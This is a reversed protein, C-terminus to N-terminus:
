LGMLSIRQNVRNLPLASPYVAFHHIESDLSYINGSGGDGVNGGLFFLSGASSNGSGVSYVIESQQAGGAVKSTVKFNGTSHSYAIALYIMKNQDNVSNSILSGGTWGAGFVRLDNISNLQAFTSGDMYYGSVFISKNATSSNAKFIIEFTRDATRGWDDALSANFAGDYNGVIVMKGQAGRLTSSALATTGRPTLNNKVAALGLDPILGSNLASFTYLHSVGDDKALSELNSANGATIAYTATSGNSFSAVLNASLPGGPANRIVSVSNSGAPAFAIQPASLSFATADTGSLTLSVAAPYTTSSNSWSQNVSYNSGFSLSSNSATPAPLSPPSGGGSCDGSGTIGLITTGACITSATPAGSIAAFYGAGAFSSGAGTVSWTGRNALTGTTLNGTSDLFTKGALVDAATATGVSSSSSCSNSSDSSSSSSSTLGSTSSKSVVISCSSSFLVVVTLWILHADSGYTQHFRRRTPLCRLLATCFSPTWFAPM